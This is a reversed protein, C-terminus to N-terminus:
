SMAFHSLVAEKDVGLVAKTDVHHLVQTNSVWVKGRWDKDVIAPGVHKICLEQTSLIARVKAREQLSRNRAAWFKCHQQGSITSVYQMDKIAQVVIGQLKRQAWINPEPYLLEVRCYGCRVYPVYIQKVLADANMAHFINRVEAEIDERRCENWGGIVIQLEDVERDTLMESRPTGRASPAPSVSRTPPASKLATLERELEKLEGHMQKLSTEQDDARRNLDAQGHSLTRIESQIDQLSRLQTAMSHQTQVLEQLQQKLGGLWGPEDLDFHQPLTRDPVAPPALHPSGSAAPGPLANACAGHFLPPYASPASGSGFCPAPPMKSTRAKKEPSEHKPLNRVSDLSGQDPIIGNAAEPPGLPPGLAASLAHAADTANALYQLAAADNNMRLCWASANRHIWSQKGRGWSIEGGLVGGMEEMPEDGLPGLGAGPLVPVELVDEGEDPPRPLIQTSEDTM